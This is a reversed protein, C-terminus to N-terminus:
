DQTCLVDYNYNILVKKIDSPLRPLQVTQDVTNTGHIRIGGLRLVQGNALQLYVPVTNAFRADVGSETLTFHVKWGGGSPTADGAFNYHPLDTGYVYERFFWDMNHTGELDMPPSMHKEVIAKFDETTAARLRYTNVFDQMTEKFRADGDKSSWMMMRIMHLIYAGKPYVLNQYVSWGAKPSSLRTGMTVPGVDIPRFGFENKQTLLDHQEKWFRRFDDSKPRTLELFISASTHAFGESMWQDRYGRFGVTQGWWQHAVEHPTVVDWYTASSFDSLGLFHRQTNDFFGCIPLYVLMPWSQGYSCASQQTLAIHPFPLAGFYSTYIEAAIQGQSLENALRPTTDLSGLSAGADSLQQALLNVTDPPQKNAYADITLHGGAPIGIQAEKAIFDGLSFGVVPLPTETKWESTTIKGETSQNMKTGTAVIQLDKPVHFLMHYSVYDGLGQNSSPYWDERAEAIPYYNLGGENLVVDKGAYTIKVTTSEGKKLPAALIVGFDPDLDPSEQIWDLANGDGGTVQAVRLTPYLALPVVALGDQEAEVHLTAQNSLMGSKEISVDLDESLIKYAANQENGSDTHSAYEAARHFALPITEANDTADWRLLAIEEPAVENVGHPDDVFYLHHNKIGHIGAFFYGGPTPSLVDELLRLELNGYLMGFYTTHGQQQANGEAHARLFSQLNQAAKAYGNDPQGPGASAARLEAATADTFRLVVQDFDEDFEDTQMLLSLNHKEEATPPTIHLHGQGQFVAGTIKGDVPAYFAFSGSHFTFEAADRKLVLDKVNISNGEPMLNRLQRYAPNTDPQRQAILPPPCAVALPLLALLPM